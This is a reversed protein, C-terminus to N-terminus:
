QNAKADVKVEIHTNTVARMLFRGLWKAFPIAATGVAAGSAEHEGSEPVTDVQVPVNAACAALALCIAAIWNRM